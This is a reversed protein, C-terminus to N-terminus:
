GIVQAWLFAYRLTATGAALKGQIEITCPKMESNGSQFELAVTGMRVPVALLSETAAGLATNEVEALTSFGSSVSFVPTSKTTTVGGVVSLETGGTNIASQGGIVMRLNTASATGAVYAFFSVRILRRAEVRPLEVKLPETFSGYATGTRTATGRYVSGAVGGDQLREDAKDALKKIQTPGDPPDTDGPYWLGLNTEPM